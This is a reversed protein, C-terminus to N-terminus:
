VIQSKIEEFLRAEVGYYYPTRFIIESKSTIGTSLDKDHVVGHQEIIVNRLFEEVLREVATTIDQGHFLDSIGSTIEEIESINFNTRNFWDHGKSHESDNALDSLMVYLDGIKNIYVYEPTNPIFIVFRKGYTYENYQYGSTFVAHDSRVDYGVVKNLIKNLLQHLKIPTNVPLREPHTTFKGFQQNNTQRIGRFILHNNCQEIFNSCEPLIVHKYFEIAATIENPHHPTNVDQRAIEFLKM